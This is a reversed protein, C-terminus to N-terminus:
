HNMSKHGNHDSNQAEFWQHFATVIEPDNSSYVLSAGNPLEQYQVDIKDGQGQLTSLGPMEAGHIAAPDSFDGRDFKQAETQLHSRVLQIQQSNSSDKVTVTQAGGKINPMFTHKTLNQVFPMVQSGRQEVENLRSESAQALASSKLTLHGGLWFILTLSIALGVCWLSISPKQKLLTMTEEKILIRTM